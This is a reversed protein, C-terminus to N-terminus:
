EENTDMGDDDEEEEEEPEMGVDMKDVVKEEEEEEGQEEEDEEEEEGEEDEGDSKELEESGEVFFRRLTRSSRTVRWGMLVEVDGSKVLEEVEEGLGGDEESGEGSKEEESKMEWEDDVWDGDM